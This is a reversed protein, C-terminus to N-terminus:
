LIAPSVLWHLRWPGPGERELCLMAAADFEIFPAADRGQLLHAALIGLYPLHGVVCVNESAASLEDAVPGVDDNPLLGDRERLTGGLQGGENLLDATQRARAKPSHWVEAAKVEARVAFQALKFVDKRGAESLPRKPDENSDLAQGHRVLYVRM